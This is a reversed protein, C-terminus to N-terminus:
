PTFGAANSNQDGRVQDALEPNVGFQVFDDQLLQITDIGADDLFPQVAVYAWKTFPSM